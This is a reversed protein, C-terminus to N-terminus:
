RRTAIYAVAIFGIVVGIAVIAPTIATTIRETDFNEFIADSADEISEGLDDISDTDIDLEGEGDFSDLDYFSTFLNFGVFLIGIILLGGVITAFLTTEDM